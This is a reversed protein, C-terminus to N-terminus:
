SSANGIKALHMRLFLNSEFESLQLPFIKKLLCFFIEQSQLITIATHCLTQIFIPLSKLPQRQMLLFLLSNLSFPTPTGDNNQRDAALITVSCSTETWVLYYQKFLIQSNNVLLQINQSKRNSAGSADSWNKPLVCYV